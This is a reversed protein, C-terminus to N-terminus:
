LDLIFKMSGCDWIRDMRNKKAIQWETLEPKENFLKILKQKNYKFRHYRIFYNSKEFYFYNPKTTNIYEFNCKHYDKNSLIMQYTFRNSVYRPVVVYEPEESLDWGFTYAQQKYEKFEWTDETMNGLYANKYFIKNIKTQESKKKHTYLLYWIRKLGNLSNVAEVIDFNMIPEFIWLKIKPNKKGNKEYVERLTYPLEDVNKPERVNFYRDVIDKYKGYKEYTEPGIFKTMQGGHIHKAAVTLFRMEHEFDCFCDLDKM